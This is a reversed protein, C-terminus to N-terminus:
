RLASLVSGPRHVSHAAAAEALRGELYGIASAVTTFQEASRNPIDIDFREECSMVIEVRDLSDAGLDKLRASDILQKEDVGLHFVLIDRFESAVNSVVRVWLDCFTATRDKKALAVNM